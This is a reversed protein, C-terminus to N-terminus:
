GDKKVAHGGFANRLAALMRDAFSDPRRSRFRRMLSLTIVEAPVARDVAEQVTWRGEGSDEVWPALGELSPNDGFVQELLELLWSRIVSGKNWLSALRAYDIERGYESADLLEFGEAYAQMMAYEIGNHIMKVFHGAGTGGCLMHGGPPALTDLIPRLTDYADQPGGLMMCYGNELGWIGGSVGADVYRIGKKSLAEARRVDDRWHGNSGDVVIDGSELLGALVDLHDDVPKGAPLMLWVIRPEDLRSPVDQLREAPEAGETGLQVSKEYTRNYAVVEHGGRLLRRAMNMGMRGLGVMALKM